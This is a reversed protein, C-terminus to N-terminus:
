RGTSGWGGEGRETESLSEAEVLEVQPYPLIVLQMIKDGVEYHKQAQVVFDKPGIGVLEDKHDWFPRTEQRIETRDTIHNFIAKLEGRYGSDIVGVANSLSMTYNRVSSRQFILGVYGPPIEVALGTGYITQERSVEKTIAVFDLGADGAKAYKPIVAKPDLKRIKVKLPVTGFAEEYTPNNEMAMQRFKVEQKM